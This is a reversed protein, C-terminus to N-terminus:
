EEKFGDKVVKEKLQNIFQMIEKRTYEPFIYANYECFEDDEKDISIQLELDYTM